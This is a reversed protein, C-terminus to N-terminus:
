IKMQYPFSELKESQLSCVTWYTYHRYSFVIKDQLEEDTALELHQLTPHKEVREEQEIRSKQLAEKMQDFLIHGFKERHEM